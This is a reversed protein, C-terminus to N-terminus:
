VSYITPLTLHTYSVPTSFMHDKSWYMDYMPKKVIGMISIVSINVWMENVTVPKWLKFLSRNTAQIRDIIEPTEKIIDAYSNTFIVIDEIIDDSLFM